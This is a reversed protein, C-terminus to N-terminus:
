STRKLAGFLECNKVGIFEDILGEYTLQTLMPTIMDVKRDIIILSDFTESISQSAGPGPPQQAELKVM